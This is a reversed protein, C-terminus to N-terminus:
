PHRTGVSGTPRPARSKLCSNSCYATPIPRSAAPKTSRFTAAARIVANATGTPKATAHLISIPGPPSICIWRLRIDSLPARSQGATRCYIQEGAPEDKPLARMGIVNYGSDVYHVEGTVASALDSLLYLASNGVEDITVNRRLPANEENWKLMERLDSIGSSALTKIPGASI